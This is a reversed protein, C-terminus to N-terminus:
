TDWCNNYIRSKLRKTQAKKKKLPTVGWKSNEGNECNEIESFILSLL